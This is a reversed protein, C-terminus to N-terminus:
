PKLTVKYLECHYNEALHGEKDLLYGTNGAYIVGKDNVVLDHLRFDPKHEKGKAVAGLDEMKGTKPDYSFIHSSAIVGFIKGTRDEALSLLYHGGEYPYGIIEIEDKGPHYSLLLGGRTGIYIVGTGAALWGYPMFFDETLSSDGRPIMLDTYEVAEAGYCYKWLYFAGFAPKYYAGYVTGDSDCCMHPSFVESKDFPLFTITKVKTTNIDYSYFRHEFLTTGYIIDHKKDVTLSHASDHAINIGRHGHEKTLTNYYFLNAGQYLENRRKGFDESFIYNDDSNLGAVGYVLERNSVISKHMKHLMQPMKPPVEEVKGIDSLEDTDPDLRVIANHRAILGVYIGRDTGIALANVSRATPIFEELYFIKINYAKM